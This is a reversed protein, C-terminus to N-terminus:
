KRPSGQKRERQKEQEKERQPDELRRLWELLLSGVTHLSAASCNEPIDQMTHWYANKGDEDPYDFDIIDCTEIRAITNLPLHDDRIVHKKQPVFEKLGMDRAVNWVSQTLRPAMNLSNEEYYIQLNKDGVMDILIAYNYRVDWEGRAYANAFATSGLFMPDRQAVYVFEEGDFFCLDIGYAGPLSGLHKALEALVGVGSAGDNAGLFIGQPNKPDRDAFPRTDFHCCLLIRKERDPHWRAFLNILETAQGTAPSNVQFRHEHITAGQAELHEILMQRQKQMGESGSIRPGIDCIQKLVEYAFEGDFVSERDNDAASEIRIAGEQGPKKEAFGSGEQAAASATVLVFACCLLASRIAGRDLSALLGPRQWDIAPADNGAGSMFSRPEPRGNEPNRQYRVQHQSIKM